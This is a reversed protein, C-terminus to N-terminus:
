KPVAAVKKLFVSSLKLIDRHADSPDELPGLADKFLRRLLFTPFWFIVDCFNQHGTRQLIHVNNDADNRANMADALKRTAQKLKSYGMFQESEIFFGPIPKQKLVRCEDQFAEQPFEFEIGASESVDIHFWGDLFLAGCFHAKEMCLARAVTSAGYSFGALVVRDLDLDLGMRSWRGAGRLFQCTQFVEEARHTVQNPRFAPDYNKYSPGHQYYKTAGDALQVCGSSGDTHHIAAVVFGRKAWASLLVANEQGTGTLGHSFVVVPRKEKGESEQYPAEQFVGPIRLWSMPLFFSSLYVVPRVIWQFMKTDHRALAMHLLGLIYPVSGTDYFWGVPKSSHLSEDMYAPYYLRISPHHRTAPFYRVGVCQEDGTILDRPVGIM